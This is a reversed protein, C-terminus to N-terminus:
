GTTVLRDGGSSPAFGLLENPECDYLDSAALLVRVSPRAKGTEIQSLQSKGIGLKKAAESLSWGKGERKIRWTESM